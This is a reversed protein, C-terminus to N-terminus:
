YQGRPPQGRPYNETPTIAGPALKGPNIERPHNELPYSDQHAHRGNNEVFEEVRGQFRTNIGYSM